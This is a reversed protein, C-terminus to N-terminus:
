EGDAEVALNCPARPLGHIEPDLRIPGEEIIEVGIEAAGPVFFYARIYHSANSGLAQAEISRVEGAATKGAAVILADVMKHKVDTPIEPVVNPVGHEDPRLHM